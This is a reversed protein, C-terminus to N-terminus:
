EESLMILVESSLFVLIHSMLIKASMAEAQLDNTKNEQRRTKKYEQM